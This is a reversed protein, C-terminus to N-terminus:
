PSGPIALVAECRPTIKPQDVTKGDAGIARWSDCSVKQTTNGERDIDCREGVRAIGGCFPTAYGYGARLVEKGNRNLYGFGGQANRTRVLDDNFADAGGDAYVKFTHGRCNLYGWEGNAMGVPALGDAGFLGGERFQPKVKTIGGADKYGYLGTLKGKYPKWNCTKLQVPIKARTRAPRSDTAAPAAVAAAVVAVSAAYAAAPAPEPEVEPKVELDPVLDPEAVGEQGQALTAPLVPDYKGKAGLVFDIAQDFVWPPATVHAGPAAAYRYDLGLQKLIDRAERSGSRRTAAESDGMFFFMRMGRETLRKLAVEDRLSARSGMIIAGSYREPNRQPLAWALDGGMSFGALVVRAPDAGHHAVADAVETDLQGVYRKLTADWAGAGAYNARSGPTSPLLVMLGRERAKAPLSEAYWNRVVDAATGRTMPLLIMLPRPGVMTDQPVWLSSGSATTIRQFGAWGGDKVQAQAGTALLLLALGAKRLASFNLRFM